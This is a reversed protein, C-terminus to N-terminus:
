TGGLISQTFAPLSEIVILIANFDKIETEVNPATVFAKFKYFPLPNIPSYAVTFIKNTEDFEYLFPRSPNWVTFGLDFLKRPTFEFFLMPTRREDQYEFRVKIDPNDFTISFDILWGAKETDILPFVEDPRLKVPIKPQPQLYSWGRVAALIYLLM